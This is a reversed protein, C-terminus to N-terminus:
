YNLISYDPTRWSSGSLAINSSRNIKSISRNLYTGALLLDSMPLSLIYGTKLCHLENYLVNTNHVKWYYNLWLKHEQMIFILSFHHGWERLMSTNSMNYKHLSCITLRYSIYIGSFQHARGIWKRAQIMMFMLHYTVRVTEWFLRFTALKGGSSWRPSSRRLHCLKM